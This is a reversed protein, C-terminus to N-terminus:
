SAISRCSVPQAASSNTRNMRHVCSEDFSFRIENKLFPALAIKMMLFPFVDNTCITVFTTIRRIFGAFECGVKACGLQV